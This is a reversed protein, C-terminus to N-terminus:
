KIWPLCDRHTKDKANVPLIGTKKPELYAGGSTANKKGRSAIGATKEFQNQVTKDKLKAPDIYQHIEGLDDDNELVVKELPFGGYRLETEPSWRLECRSAIWVLLDEQLPPKGYKIFKNISEEIRPPIIHMPQKMQKGELWERMEVALDSKHVDTRAEHGHETKVMVIIVYPEACEFCELTGRFIQGHEQFALSLVHDFSTNLLGSSSVLFFLIHSNTM